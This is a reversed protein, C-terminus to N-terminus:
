LNENEDWEEREAELVCRIEHIHTLIDNLHSKLTMERQFGPRKAQFNECTEHINASAVRKKCWGSKTKEYRTLERTYYRDFFRCRFCHRNTNEM